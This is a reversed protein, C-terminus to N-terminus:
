AWYHQNMDLNNVKDPAVISYQRQFFRYVFLDYLTGMDIPILLKDSQHM